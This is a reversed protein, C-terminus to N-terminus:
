VGAVASAVLRGVPHLQLENMMKESMVIVFAAGDSTQSSNGATVAGGAAFAPKLRALADLSTDARPGEDTAVVFSRKQKKGKEDVYVEEVDIPLIGEKFYGKNIAEIAKQHSQFSFADAAERSIKFDRAVAEATLGMNLYYDPA